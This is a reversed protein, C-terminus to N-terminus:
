ITNTIRQCIWQVTDTFAEERCEPLEHYLNHQAGPYVKLNKDTSPSKDHLLQSGKLQCLQDEDGHIIMFPISIM